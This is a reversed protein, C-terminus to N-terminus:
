DEKKLIRDKHVSLIWIMFIFGLCITNSAKFLTGILALLFVLIIARKVNLWKIIITILKDM